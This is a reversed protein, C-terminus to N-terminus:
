SIKYATKMATKYVGRRWIIITLSTCKIACKAVAMIATGNISTQELGSLMWRTMVDGKLHYVLLLQLSAFLLTRVALNTNQEVWVLAINQGTCISCM